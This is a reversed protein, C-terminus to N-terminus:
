MWRTHCTDSADDGLHFVKCRVCELLRLSYLGVGEEVDRVSQRLLEDSNALYAVCRSQEGTEPDSSDRGTALRSTRESRGKDRQEEDDGDRWKSGVWLVTLL